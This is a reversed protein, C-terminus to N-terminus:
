PLAAFTLAAPPPPAGSPGTIYLQFQNIGNWGTREAHIKKGEKFCEKAPKDYELIHNLAWGRIYDTLDYLDLERQNNKVDNMVTKLKELVTDHENKHEGYKEYATGSLLKEETSFHEGFYNILTEMIRDFFHREENKNGTCHVIFNNIMNMIEQHQIDIEATEVYYRSNMKIYDLKKM